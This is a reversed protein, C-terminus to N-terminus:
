SWTLRTWPLAASASGCGLKNAGAAAAQNYGPEGLGPTSITRFNDLDEIRGMWWGGLDAVEAVGDGGSV